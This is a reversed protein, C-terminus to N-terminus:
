LASWSAQKTAAIKNNNMKQFHLNQDEAKAFVKPKPQRDPVKDEILWM